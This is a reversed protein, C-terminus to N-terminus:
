VDDNGDVHREKKNPLAPSDDEEHEATVAAFDGLGRQLQADCDARRTSGRQGAYDDNLEFIDEVRAPDEAGVHVSCSYRGRLVALANRWGRVRVTTNVFPDAIPQRDIRKAGERVEVTYADGTERSDYTPEISYRPEAM